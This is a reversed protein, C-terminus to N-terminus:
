PPIRSIDVENKFILDTLRKKVASFILPTLFAIKNCKDQPVSEIYDYAACINFCVFYIISSQRKLIIFISLMFLLKKM